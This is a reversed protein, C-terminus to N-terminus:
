RDLCHTRPPTHHHKDLCWRHLLLLVKSGVLALWLDGAVADDVIM